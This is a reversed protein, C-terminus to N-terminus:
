SMWQHGETDEHYIEEHGSGLICRSYGAIENGSSNCHEVDSM